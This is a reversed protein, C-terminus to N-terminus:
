VKLKVINLKNLKISGIGMESAIKIYSITEPEAGLLKAAAADAVVANQSVILSKMLVCDSESVGQPGHTKMVRYADVVNLTSKHYSSFDAICQQLGIKHWEGCHWVIGMLNKMCSTLLAESHHKLVPVNIFVDAELVLQRIKAKKLIIGSPIEIEKYYIEDSVPPMMIGGAAEVAAKIGSYQYRKQWNYDTGDFVYVTKAGAKVCHEVIRKVLVPNTTAGMEPIKDFGINPKVIVTQGKKVFNSMGGFVEIAKDFMVDPEGGKVIVLDVPKAKISYAKLKELNGFGLYFGALIGAGVGKNLFERRKM